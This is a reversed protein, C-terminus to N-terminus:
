LLSKIGLTHSIFRGNSVRKTSFWGIKSYFRPLQKQSDSDIARHIVLRTLSSQIQHPKLILIGFIVMAILLTM